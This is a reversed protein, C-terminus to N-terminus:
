KKKGSTCMSLSDGLLGKTGIATFSVAAVFGFLLWACNTEPRVSSGPRGLQHMMRERVSFAEANEM